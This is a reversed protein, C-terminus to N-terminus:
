KKVLFTSNGLETKLTYLGNELSSVDIKDSNQDEYVVNGLADYVLIENAIEGISVSGTNSPNPFVSVVRDNNSFDFLGTALLVYTQFYMDRTALTSGAANTYAGSGYPNDLSGLIFVQASGGSLKISYVEGETVQVGTFIVQAIDASSAPTFTASGLAASGVGDEEIAGEFIEVTIESPIFSILSLDLKQLEGTVGATFSQYVVQTSNKQELPNLEITVGPQDAVQAFSLLSTVLLSSLLIKKM